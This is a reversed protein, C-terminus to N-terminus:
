EADSKVGVVMELVNRFMLPVIKEEGGERGKEEEVEEVGRKM